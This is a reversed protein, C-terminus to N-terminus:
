NDMHSSALYFAFEYHQDFHLLDNDDFRNPYFSGSSASPRTTAPYGGPAASSVGNGMGFMTLGQNGPMVALLEAINTKLELIERDKTMMM